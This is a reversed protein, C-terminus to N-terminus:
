ETKAPRLVLPTIARVWERYGAGNLHLGDYTFNNQLMGDPALFDNLDVFRSTTYTDCYDELKENLEIVLSHISEDFNGGPLITSQVFIRIGADTFRDIIERYRAFVDEIIEGSTLDNIGIMIFVARPKRGVVEDLRRILGATTDKGIGRNVISMEPFLEHWEAGATISDGLMVIAPQSDLSKFHSVTMEWNPQETVRLRYERESSYLRQKIAQLQPFPFLEYRAM